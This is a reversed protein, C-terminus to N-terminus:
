RHAHKAVKLLITALLNGRRATEMEKEIAELVYVGTEEIADVTM